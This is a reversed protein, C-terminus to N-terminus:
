EDGASSKLSLVAAVPFHDSPWMTGCRHYEIWAERVSWSRTILVHDIMAKGTMGGGFGHGTRRNEQDAHLLLFAERLSNTEVAQKTLLKVMAPNTETANFDGLVVVPEEGHKRGAIREAMLVASRERSPQSQHDWHTNFVYFSAGGVKETLRVWTCIRPISNGWSMSGPEEPSDSLWFTGQEKDDVEFRDKRYFIPSYEGRTKGDDRGVGVVGYIPLTKELYAKQKDMAEQLGLVDLKMKGITEAVLDRRAKWDREGRDGSTDYRINFTAVRLDDAQVAGVWLGMVLLIWARMATHHGM